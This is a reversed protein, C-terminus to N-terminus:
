ERRHQDNSQGLGLALPSDQAARDPLLALLRGPDGTLQLRGPADLHAAQRLRGHDKRAVRAEVEIRKQLWGTFDATIEVIEKREVAVADEEQDAVHGALPHRAAEEHRDALREVLARRQPLRALELRDHALGVGLDRAVVGFAEEDGHEGADEVRARTEELVAVSTVLRWVEQRAALSEDPAERVAAARREARDIAKGVRRARDMQLGAVREAEDRVAHGFRRGSPAREVSSLAELRQQRLGTGARPGRVHPVGDAPLNGPAGLAHLGGIVQRSEHHAPLASGWGATLAGSASTSRSAATARSPSRM